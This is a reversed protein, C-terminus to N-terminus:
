LSKLLREHYADALDVLVQKCDGHFAPGHMLALTRPALDALRRITTATFPTLATALYLDETAIAPGTLDGSTKPPADGTQTFLDGCLLTGTTEEYMLGADWCHPVHPTPLYRVRKGGLDIVENEQLSRPPRLAYDNASLMCAIEGVAVQAAPAASLWDNLAGSEDAEHHGYSIWRLKELPIIRSVANSILPFMSKMGCHFLLPEEADILVQNFRLDAPPIYTSLHYIRDSVETIRTEM